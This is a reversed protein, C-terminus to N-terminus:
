NKVEGIKGELIARHQGIQADGVIRLPRERLRAVVRDEQHGPCDGVAMAEVRQDPRALYEVGVAIEDDGDVRRRRRIRRAASANPCSERAVRDAVHHLV